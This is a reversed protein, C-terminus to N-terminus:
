LRGLPLNRGEEREEPRGPGLDELRRGLMGTGCGLDLVRATPPPTYRALVADYKTAQLSAFRADYNAASRAYARRLDDPSVAM